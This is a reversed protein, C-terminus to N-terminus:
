RRPEQAAQHRAEHLAYGQETHVSVLVRLMRMFEKREAPSLPALLERQSAETKPRARSILPEALPTAYLRRVRRDDPCVERRALGLEVLRDVLRVGTTRDVDATQTLSAQDIGPNDVIVELVGFQVPSMALDATFSEFLRVSIQHLRRILLGPKSLPDFM